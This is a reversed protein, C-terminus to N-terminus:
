IADFAKQLAELQNSYAAQAARMNKLIDNASERVLALVNDTVVNDEEEEEHNDLALLREMWYNAGYSTFLEEGRRVTCTTVLALMPAPGFPIFVCNRQMSSIYYDILGQESRELVISGDNVWHALFCSNSNNSAGRQPNVDVFLPMGHFLEKMNSSNNRLLPRSGLLFQLYEGEHQKPQQEFYREDTSEMYCRVTSSDEEEFDVGLCHVPYFSVITGAKINQRAFVGQGAKPISSELVQVAQRMQKGWAKLSSSTEFFDEKQVIKMKALSAKLLSRVDDLHDEKKATDGTNAQLWRRGISPM